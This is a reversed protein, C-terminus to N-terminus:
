TELHDLVSEEMIHKANLAEVLLIRAQLAVQHPTQKKSNFILQSRALWVKWCLYKPLSASVRRFLKKSQCSCQSYKKQNLFMDRWTNPIISIGGMEAFSDKWVVHTYPCEILLHQITEKAMNCLACSSPGHVGRKHSNDYTLFIGHVLYLYFANLKPVGYSNWIEKQISFSPPKPLSEM